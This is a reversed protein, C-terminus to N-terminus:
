FVSKLGRIEFGFDLDTGRIGFDMTEHHFGLHFGHNQDFLKFVVRRNKQHFNWFIIKSIKQNKFFFDIKKM